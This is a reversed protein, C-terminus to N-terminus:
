LDRNRLAAVAVLKRELPQGATGAAEESRLTVQVRVAVVERTPLNWNGAFSTASAWASALAFDATRDRTLYDIQLDHVGPLIEQRETLLQVAGGITVKDIGARYLSRSGRRNQGVYWIAPHWRVLTAGADFTKDQPSTCQSDVKGLSTTCNPASASYTIINTAATATDIRLLASSKGDCVLVADDPKLRGISAVNFQTAVPDHSLVQQVFDEDNAPRLLVIADTDDIRAGPTTGFPVDASAQGGDFGRLMGADTDAWWPSSLTAGPTTAVRVVNATLTTGCPVMGADRTERMLLEFAFRANEQMRALNDNARFAARNSAFLSLAGGVLVLGLVLAVLLEVMTLGHQRGPRRVRHATMAHPTEM